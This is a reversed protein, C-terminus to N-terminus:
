TLQEASQRTWQELATDQQAVASAQLAAREQEIQRIEDSRRQVARQVGATLQTFFTEYAEQSVQLEAVITNYDRILLHFEHLREAVSLPTPGRPLLGWRRPQQRVGEQILRQRRQIQEQLRCFGATAATPLMYTQDLIRVSVMSASADRQIM